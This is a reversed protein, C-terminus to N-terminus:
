YTLYPLIKPLIEKIGYIKRMEQESIIKQHMNRYEIILKAHRYRFYPHQSLEELTVTNINIKKHPSSINLFPKIKRFTSDPLGYTEKIQELEFFGGLKERFSIIKFAYFKGIGPLEMLEDVSASNIELQGDFHKNKKPYLSNNKPFQEKTFPTPEIIIFPELSTYLEQPFSYIKQLDSKQRFKGGKERYNIIRKCIADPIGLKKLEEFTAISPSFAKLEGVDVRNSNTGPTISQGHDIKIYPLLRNFDDVSLGWIKKFDDPRKFKGGKNRYNIITKITKSSLGLAHFDDVNASNPNFEFARIEHKSEPVTTVLPQESEPRLSSQIPPSDTFRVYINPLLFLGLAISGIWVASNREARSFYFYDKVKNKM